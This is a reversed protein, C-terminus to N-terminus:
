ARTRGQMARTISYSLHCNALFFLGATASMSRARSAKSPRSTDTFRRVHKFTVEPVHCGAVWREVGGTYIWHSGPSSATKMPSPLDERDVAPLVRPQAWIM